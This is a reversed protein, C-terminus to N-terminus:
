AISGKRRRAEELVSKPGRRAMAWVFVIVIIAFQLWLWIELVFAVIGRQRPPKAVALKEASRRNDDRLDLSLALETKSRNVTDVIAEFANALREPVPTSPRSIDLNSPKDAPILTGGFRGEKWHAARMRITQSKRHQKEAPSGPQSDLKIPSRQWPGPQLATSSGSLSTTPASTVSSYVPDSRTRSASVANSTTEADPDISGLTVISSTRFHRDDLSGDQGLRGDWQGDFAAGLESDLTPRRLSGETLPSVTGALGPSLIPSPSRSRSSTSTNSPQPVFPVPPLGPIMM